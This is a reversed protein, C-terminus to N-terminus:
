RERSFQESEKDDHENDAEFSNSASHQEGLRDTYPQVFSSADMGQSSIPQGHKAKASVRSDKPSRSKNNAEKAIM